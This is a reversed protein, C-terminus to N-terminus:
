NNKLNDSQKYPSLAPIRSAGRSKDIRLVTKTKTHFM